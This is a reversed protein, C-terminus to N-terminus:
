VGFKLKQQVIGDCDVLTVSLRVSTMSTAYASCAIYPCAHSALTASFIGYEVFVYKHLL